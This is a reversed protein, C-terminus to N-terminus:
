FDEKNITFQNKNRKILNNNQLTELSRYLSSRGIKLRRSLEAMGFDLTVNGKDDARSLLYEYVKEETSDATFTDIKRNLFRIKDSLYVIYNEAIVPYLSFFQRLKNESIYVVECPASAIISSLNEKWEGFVSAMGFAEDVGINRLTVSQGLNNKRIIKGTGKLIIGVNGCRYLEDGYNFHSGKDLQKEIEALQNNNLGKFLFCNM